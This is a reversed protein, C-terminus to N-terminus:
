NCAHHRKSIKFPTLMVNVTKFYLKQAILSFIYIYSYPKTCYHDKHITLVMIEASNNKTSFKLYYEQSERFLLLCSIDENKPFFCFFMMAAYGHIICLLRIYLIIYIIYTSCCSKILIFFYYYLLVRRLSM